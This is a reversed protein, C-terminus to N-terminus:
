VLTNGSKLFWDSTTTCGYLESSVIFRRANFASETPPAAKVSERSREAKRKLFGGRRRRRKRTTRRVGGRKGNRGELM